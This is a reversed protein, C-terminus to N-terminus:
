SFVFHRFCSFFLIGIISFGLFVVFMFDKTARVFKTQGHFADILNVLSAVSFRLKDTASLERWEVGRVGRLPIRAM